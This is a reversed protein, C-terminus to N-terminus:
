SQMYSKQTSSPNHIAEYNVIFTYLNNVLDSADMPPNTLGNTLAPHGRCAQIINERLHVPGYYAPDLGQQITDLETCM